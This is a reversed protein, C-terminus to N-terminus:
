RGATMQRHKERAIALAAPDSANIREITGDQHILVFAIVPSRHFCPCDDPCEGAEKLNNDSYLIMCHCNPHIAGGDARTLYQSATEEGDILVRGSSTVEFTRAGPFYEPLANMMGENFRSMDAQRADDITVYVPCPAAPNETTRNCGTLNCRFHTNHVGLAFGCPNRLGTGEHLCWQQNHTWHNGRIVNETVTTDALDTILTAFHSIDIIDESNTTEVNLYYPCPKDEEVQEERGCKCYTGARFHTHHIAYALFCPRLLTEQSIVGYRHSCWSHEHSWHISTDTRENIWDQLDRRLINLEEEAIDEEEDEPTALTPANTDADRMIRNASPTPPAHTEPASSPVSTEETGQSDPITVNVLDVIGITQRSLVNAADRRNPTNPVQLHRRPSPSGTPLVTTRGPPTQPRTPSSSVTIVPTSKAKIARLGRRDPHPRGQHTGSTTPNAVEVTDDFDTEIERPQGRAPCGKAGAYHSHAECNICQRIGHKVCWGPAQCGASPCIHDKSYHEGWCYKCRKPNKCMRAIHQPELCRECYALYLDPTWERCEKSVGCFNARNTNALKQAAENKEVGFVLSGMTAKKGHLGALSGVFRPRSLVNVGPNNAGFEHKCTEMAQMDWDSVNWSKTTPRMHNLPVRHVVLLMRELDKIVEFPYEIADRIGREILGIYPWLTHASHDSDAELLINNSSSLKIHAIIGSKERVGARGLRNNICTALLDRSVKEKKYKGSRVIVLRGDRRTPPTSSPAKPGRQPPPPQPGTPARPARKPTQDKLAQKARRSTVTAWSPTVPTTQPSSIDEDEEDEDAGPVPAVYKKPGQAAARPARTTTTTTTTTTTPANTAPKDAAPARHPHPQPEQSRTPATPVPRTPTPERPKDGSRDIGKGKDTKTPIVVAPKPPLSPHNRPLAPAPARPTNLIKDKLEKNQERLFLLKKELSEFRQDQAQFLNTFKNVIGTYANDLNSCKNLVAHVNANTSTIIQNMHALLDEVGQLRTAHLGSTNPTAPAYAVPTAPRQPLAPTPRRTPTPRLAVPTNSRGAPPSNPVSRVQQSPTDMRPPPLQTERHAYQSASLDGHDVDEMRESTDNSSFRGWPQSARITFPMAQRPASANNLIAELAPTPPIDLGCNCGSTELLAPLLRRLNRRLTEADQHMSIDIPALPINTGAFPCSPDHESTLTVGGSTQQGQPGQLKFGQPIFPLQHAM